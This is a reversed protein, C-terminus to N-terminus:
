RNRDLDSIARYAALTSTAGQGALATSAVFGALISKAEAVQVLTVGQRELHYISRAHVTPTHRGIFHPQTEVNPVIIRDGGLNGLLSRLIQHTPPAFRGVFHPNQEPRQIDLAPNQRAAQNIRHAPPVHRGLFHTNTEPALDQAPAQRLAPLVTIKAPTHRGITHPNTEVQPVRTDWTNYAFRAHVPAVYRGLFYINTTPQPAIIFDSAPNQFAPRNITHIAPAFRGIFHPNTEPQPVRSDWVTNYRFRAHVPATYRGIFHPNTERQTDASLTTERLGRLIQHATPTFRGLFHVNTELVPQADARSNYNFRAHTTATFRGLFSVSTEAPPTAVIFDTAQGWYTAAIRAPSLYGDDFNVVFTSSRQDPPVAAVAAESAYNQRLTPPLTFTTPTFRGVFHPNTEVIPPVDSGGQRLGTLLSHTYAEFTGLFPPNTEPQAPATFVDVAPKQYLPAIQAPAPYGDDFRVVTMSVYSTPAAPVDPAFNYNFRAYVPATFRGLFGVNTEAQAVVTPVDAAANQRVIPTLAHTPVTFRGVFSVNTEGAAASPVNQRLAPSITHATAAFRGLFNTNTEVVVALPVNPDSGFRLQPSLAHTTPAFRGLFSVNTEPQPVRSDWTNYNFRAHTPAQFRGVFHPNTEPAFAPPLNQRLAPLISHAPAAFRGLFHPQAEVTPLTDSNQRLAPLVTHVPAAFRGIFNTNTEPQPVRSDWTTNYPFRAHVPASYRGIFHPQTEPQAPAAPVDVAQGQYYLRAAQVRPRQPPDLVVMWGANTEQVIPVDGAQLNYNFRAHIPASYRGLFHPNTEPQVVTVVDSAPQQYLPAIQRPSAYGDDFGVVFTSTFTAVPRVDGAQLNYRFRAHVPATFRGLFHPNERDIAPDVSQHSYRFRAHTVPPDPPRGFNKAQWHVPPELDLQFATIFLAWQQATSSLSPNYTQTTTGSGLLWGGNVRANGSGGSNAENPPTAWPSAAQTFTANGGATTSGSDCLVGVFLGNPHAPAGSTVTITGTTGTASARAATDEPNAVVIVDPGFYCASIACVSGSTNKTYTITNGNSLAKSNFAFFVMGRGDAATAALNGSQSTNWTNTATDALTGNVGTTSKETVGVVILSGAPVGAAGVTVAITAGTTNTNTGINVAQPM